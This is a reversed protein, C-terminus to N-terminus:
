DAENFLNETIEILLNDFDKRIEENLLLKNYLAPNRKPEKGYTDNPKFKKVFDDLGTNIGNECWKGFTLDFDFSM